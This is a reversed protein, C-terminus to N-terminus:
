DIELRQLWLDLSIADLNDVTLLKELVRLIPSSSYVSVTPTEIGEFTTSSDESLVM